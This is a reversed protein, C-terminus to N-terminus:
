GGEQLIYNIREVGIQLVAEILEQRKESLRYPEKIEYVDCARRIDVMLDTVKNLEIKKAEVFRRRGAPYKQLFAVCVEEFRSGKKHPGYARVHQRGRKRFRQLFRTKIVGQDDFANQLGKKEFSWGLSDGNDYLPAVRAGGDTDIIAWNGAHRDTNSILSDLAFARALFELFHRPSLGYIKSLLEDNVKFLLELTYHSGKCVGYDQHIESCLDSGEIVEERFRGGSDANYFYRFLNGIKQGRRAIGTHQVDWGLLDGAIYSALLESWVQHERLESPEKFLFYKGSVPDILSAKERGAPVPEQVLEWSDVDQIPDFSVFKFGAM